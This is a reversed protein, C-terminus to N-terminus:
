YLSVPVPLIKEINVKHQRMGHENVSIRYSFESRQYKGSAGPTNAWGLKQDFQYFKYQNGTPAVSYQHPDSRLLRYSYEAILLAILSSALILILRFILEKYKLM